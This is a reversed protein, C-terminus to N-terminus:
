KKRLINKNAYRQQVLLIWQSMESYALM